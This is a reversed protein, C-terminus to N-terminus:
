HTRTWRAHETEILARTEEPFGPQSALACAEEYFGASEDPLHANLTDFAFRMMAADATRIATIAFNLNLLRWAREPNSREMDAKLAPTLHQVFGQMLAYVAAADQRTEARNSQAALANAIPEAAQIPLQHRMAWYGIGIQVMHLIERQDTNELRDLWADLEALCRLAEDVARAADNVPLESDAGYQSDLNQMLPLFESIISILGVADTAGGSGGFRQQYAENVSAALAAFRERLLAHDALNTDDANILHIQIPKASTKRESM